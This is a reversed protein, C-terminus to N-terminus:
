EIEKICARGTIAIENIRFNSYNHYIIQSGWNNHYFKTNNCNKSFCYGNQIILDFWLKSAFTWRNLQRIKRGLNCVSFVISWWSFIYSQDILWVFSFVLIQDNTHVFNGICIYVVSVFTRRCCLMNM